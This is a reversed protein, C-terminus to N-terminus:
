LGSASGGYDRIWADLLAGERKGRDQMVRLLDEQARALKRRQAPTLIARLADTLRARLVAIEEECAASARAAARLATEDLPDAHTRRFVEVRAAAAAELADRLAPQREKMLAASRAKQDATLGLDNDAPKRAPEAAKAALALVLFGLIAKPKM